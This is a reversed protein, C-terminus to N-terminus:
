VHLMGGEMNERMIQFDIYSYDDLMKETAIRKNQKSLINEIKNVSHEILDLSLLDVENSEEVVISRYFIEQARFNGYLPHSLLKYGKQIYSRAEKLIELPEVDM